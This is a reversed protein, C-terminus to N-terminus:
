NKTQSMYVHVSCDDIMYRDSLFEDRLRNYVVNYKGVGDSTVSVSSFPLYANSEATVTVDTSKQGVKPPRLLPSPINPIDPIDSGLSYPYASSNSCGGRVNGVGENNTGTSTTELPLTVTTRSPITVLEDTTNSAAM